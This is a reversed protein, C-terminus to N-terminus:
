FPSRHQLAGEGAVFGLKTWVEAPTQLQIVHVTWSPQQSCSVSILGLFLLIDSGSTFSKWEYGLRAGAWASMMQLPLQFLKWLCLKGCLLALHTHWRIILCCTRQPRSNPSPPFPSSFVQLCLLLIPVAHQSLPKPANDTYLELPSSLLLFPGMWASGTGYIHCNQKRKPTSFAVTLTRVM